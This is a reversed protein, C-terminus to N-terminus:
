RTLGQSLERMKAALFKGLGRSYRLTGSLGAQVGSVKVKEHIVAMRPSIRQLWHTPTEGMITGNYIGSDIAAATVLAQESGLLRRAEIEAYAPGSKVELLSKELQAVEQGMDGIKAAEAAKQIAQRAQEQARVVRSAGSSRREIATVTPGHHRTPVAEIGAAAHSRYDIRADQGAKSLADNALEAWRKRLHDIANDQGVKGGMNHAVLDLERAKNGFGRGEVRNTSTLIHVHHNRQDGQRDPRHIAVDAAM